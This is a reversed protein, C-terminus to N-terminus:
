LTYILQSVVLLQKTPKTSIIILVALLHIGTSRAVAVFAVLGRGDRASRPTAVHSQHTCHFRMIVTVKPGFRAPQYISTAKKGLPM